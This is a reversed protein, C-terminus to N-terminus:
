PCPEKSFGAKFPERHFWFLHRLAGHTSPESTRHNGQPATGAGERVRSNAGPMTARHDRATSDKSRNKTIQRGRPFMRRCGFCAMRPRSNTHVKEKMQVKGGTSPQFRYVMLLIPVVQSGSQHAGAEVCLESLDSSHPGSVLPRLDPASVKPNFPRQEQKPTKQM